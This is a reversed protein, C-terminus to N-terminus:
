AAGQAIMKISNVIASIEKEGEILAPYFRNYFAGDRQVAKLDANALICLLLFNNEDKLVRAIESAPTIGKNYRELWDHQRILLCIQKKLNQSIDFRELIKETDCASCEPHTKDIEGEKKTIDHMLVAVRLANKDREPLNLYRKDNMVGQLVNLTHVDVTYNHTHHQLKGIMTLFEPFTRVIANLANSLKENGDVSVQNKFMFDVIKDYIEKSLDSLNERQVGSVCPYGLFTTMESSEVFVFGFTEQVIHQEAKDLKSFINALDQVFKKRPYALQIEFGIKKMDFSLFGGEPKEMEELIKFFNDLAVKEM